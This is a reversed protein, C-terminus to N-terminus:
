SIIEFFFCVVFAITALVVAAVFALCLADALRM